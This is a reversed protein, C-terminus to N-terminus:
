KVIRILKKFNEKVPCAAKPKIYMDRKRQDKKPQENETLYIQTKPCVQPYKSTGLGGTIIMKGGRHFM